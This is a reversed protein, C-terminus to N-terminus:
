RNEGALWKIPEWVGHRDLSSALWPLLLVLAGVAYMGIGPIVTALEAIKTLAVLIGLLLVESMSWPRLRDAWRLLHGAWAPAPARRVVLLVAVMVAVYAAPAAVACFAVIVATLEAGQMWMEIAGGALTTTATRGAVALTMLPAVNAIVVTILAAVAIALSHDLGHKTHVALTQGCRRCRAKGGRDLAPIRQLLDCGHCAVTTV